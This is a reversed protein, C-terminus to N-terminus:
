GRVARLNLPNKASHACCVAVALADATDDPKPIEPLGLLMRTMEQVQRKDAGGYGTVAQKIQLPTYEHIQLGTKAACLLICGRAQAVGMATTTNTNFFLQEIGLVGPNWRHILAETQDYIRCLREEFDQKPSTRVAGYDLVTFRGSEYRVVGYGVIAYGPDIGLIIM